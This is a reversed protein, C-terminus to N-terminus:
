SMQALPSNGAGPEPTSTMGGGTIETLKGYVILTPPAYIRKNVIPQVKDNNVQKEEMAFKGKQDFIM